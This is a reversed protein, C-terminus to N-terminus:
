HHNQPVPKWWVPCPGLLSTGAASQPLAMHKGWDRTKHWPSPAPCLGLLGWLTGATGERPLPFPTHPLSCLAWEGTVGFTTQSHLWAAATAVFLKSFLLLLPLILKLFFPNLWLTFQTTPLTGRVAGSVAPCSLPIPTTGPSPFAKSIKQFICSVRTTRKPKARKKGGGKGATRWSRQWTDREHSGTLPLRHVVMNGIHESSLLFILLFM